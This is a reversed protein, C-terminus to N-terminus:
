IKLLNSKITLSKEETMFVEGGLSQSESTLEVFAFEDRGNIFPNGDVISSYLYGRV